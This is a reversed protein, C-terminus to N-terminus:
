QRFPRVSRRILAESIAQHNSIHLFYKDNGIQISGQKVRDRIGKLSRQSGQPQHLTTRLYAYTENVFLYTVKVTIDYIKAQSDIM